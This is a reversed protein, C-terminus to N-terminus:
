VEADFGTAAPARDFAGADVLYARKSAGGGSVEVLEVPQANFLSSRYHYAVRVDRLPAAPFKRPGRLAELVVV